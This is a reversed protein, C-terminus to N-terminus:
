RERSMANAITGFFSELMFPDDHDFTTAAFFRSGAM